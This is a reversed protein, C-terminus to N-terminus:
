RVWFHSHSCDCIFLMKWEKYPSPVRLTKEINPNAMPTSTCPVFSALDVETRVCQPSGFYTRAKKVLSEPDDTSNSPLDFGTM